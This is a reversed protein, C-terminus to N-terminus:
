FQQPLPNPKESPGCQCVKGKIVSMEEWGRCRLGKNTCHPAKGRHFPWTHTWASASTGSTFALAFINNVHGVVDTQVTAIGGVVNRLFRFDREVTVETQTRNEPVNRCQMKPNEM